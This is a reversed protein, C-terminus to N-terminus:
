IEYIDRDTVEMKIFKREGYSAERVKEWAAYDKTADGTSAYRLWNCLPKPAVGSALLNVGSPDGLLERGTARILALDLRTDALKSTKVELPLLNLSRKPLGIMKNGLSTSYWWGGLLAAGHITPSIFVTDPSIDGHQYFAGMTSHQLYCTLNHLRSLIWTTHRDPVVGKYFDCVDRLLFLDPTKEIVLVLWDTTEFFKKIKPMCKSIEKEVSPNGYKLGNIQAVANDFLTRFTKKILYVVTTDSVFFEGLEFQYSKRFYIRYSHDDLSHLALHHKSRWFREQFWVEALDHLRKIKTVIEDGQPHKSQDPHWKLLLRKYETKALASDDSYLFGPEGDPLALIETASFTIPNM